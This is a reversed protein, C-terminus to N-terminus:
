VLDVLVDAIHLKFSLKDDIIIRLYKVHSAWELLNQNFRIDPLVPYILSAFIILKTKKENAVLKNTNFYDSLISVFRQFTEVLYYFNVSEAYFVANNAFFSM